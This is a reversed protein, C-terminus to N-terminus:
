NQLIACQLLRASQFSKFQHDKSKQLKGYKSVVCITFLLCSSIGLSSLRVCEFLLYYLLIHWYCKM